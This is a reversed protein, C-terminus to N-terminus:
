SSLKHVEGDITVVIAQGRDLYGGGNGSPHLSEALWTVMFDQGSVIVGRHNQLLPIITELVEEEPAYKDGYVNLIENSVISLGLVESIIQATELTRKWTASLLVTSALLDPDFFHELQEAISKIQRKGLDDLGGDKGFPDYMGHRVIGVVERAM